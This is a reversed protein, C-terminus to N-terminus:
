PLCPVTLGVTEIVRRLTPPDFDQDIEIYLEKNLRIRLGSAQRQESCPVLEFLCSSGPHPKEEQFRRRWHYFRQPNIHHERCFAAGSLGSEIQQDVLSRWYTSREERTMKKVGTKRRGLHHGDAPVFINCTAM